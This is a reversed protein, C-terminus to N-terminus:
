YTEPQQQQFGSVKRALKVEYNPSLITPFGYMQSGYIPNFMKVRLILYNSTLFTFYSLLLTIIKKKFDFYDQGVLSSLFWPFVRVNWKKANISVSGSKSGKCGCVKMKNENLNCLLGVWQLANNHFSLAIKCISVM